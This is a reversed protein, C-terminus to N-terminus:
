LLVLIFGSNVILKPQGVNSLSEKQKRYNERRKENVLPDIIRKLLIEGRKTKYRDNAKVRNAEKAEEKTAYKYGGIWIRYMM